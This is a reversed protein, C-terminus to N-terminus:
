LQPFHVVVNLINALNCISTRTIRRLPLVRSMIVYRWLCVGVGNSLELNRSLHSSVILSITHSLLSRPLLIPYPLRASVGLMKNEEACWLTWSRVEDWGGRGVNRFVESTKSLFHWTAEHVNRCEQRYDQYTMSQDRWNRRFQTFQYTFVSLLLMNCGHGRRLINLNHYQMYDTVNYGFSRLFMKGGDESRPQLFGAINEGSSRTIVM